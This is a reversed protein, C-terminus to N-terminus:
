LGLKSRVKSGGLIFAAAASVIQSTQDPVEFTLFCFMGLALCFKALGIMKDLRYKKYSLKAM